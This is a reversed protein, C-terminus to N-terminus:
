SEDNKFYIMEKMTALAAASSAARYTPHNLSDRLAQYSAAEARLRRTEWASVSDPRQAARTTVTRYETTNTGFPNRYMSIGAHLVSNQYRANSLWSRIGDVRLALGDTILIKAGLLGHAGYSEVFYTDFHDVGAGLLVSFRGSTFPTTLARASMTASNVSQLGFDRGSKSSSGEFELSLMPHLFASVRGGGGWGRNMGNNGGFATSSGFAGFEVTGREQAAIRGAFVLMAVGITTFLRGSM